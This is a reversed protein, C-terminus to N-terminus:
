SPDPERAPAVTAFRREGYVGGRRPLEVRVLGRSVLSNIEHLLKRRAEPSANVRSGLGFEAYIKRLNKPRELLNLLRTRTATSEPNGTVLVTLHDVKDVITQIVQIGTAGTGVVGVRKGEFDVPQKPWRATHFLQGKFTEEGPFLSTLPASLMGCCTVVFQSDITQGQETTLIWRTSVEDFHASKIKTNFQIDRRLDLRETIYHMWREIEPQAPFRESWSWNKYIEESFFYQYAHSESDFRAGPYRNWYWTGGVDSGMEFAHVNLGQKRLLHLEYIGAVGAGIVAADLRLAPESGRAGPENATMVNMDGRFTHM